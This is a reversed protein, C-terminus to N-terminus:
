NDSSVQEEKIKKSTYEKHRSKQKNRLLLFKELEEALSLTDIGEPLLKKKTAEEYLRVIVFHTHYSGKRIEPTIMPGWVPDDCIYSMARPIESVVMDRSEYIDEPTIRGALMLVTIRPIMLYLACANAFDDSIQSIQRTGHRLQNIYGYTVGLFKAMEAMQHRNDNAHKILAALLMGGKRNLEGEDLNGSWPMRYSSEDGNGPRLASVKKTASAPKARKTKSPAKDNEM